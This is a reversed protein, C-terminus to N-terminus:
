WAFLAPWDTRLHSENSFGPIKGFAKLFTFWAEQTSWVATNGLIQGAYIGLVIQLRFDHKNILCCTNFTLTESVNGKLIKSEFAWMPFLLLKLSFAHYVSIFFWIFLHDLCVERFNFDCLLKHCAITQTSVTFHELYPTSHREIAINTYLTCVPTSLSYTRMSWWPHWDWM